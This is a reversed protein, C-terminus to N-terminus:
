AAEFWEDIRIKKLRETEKSAIKFPEKSGALAAQLTFMANMAYDSDIGHSSIVKEAQKKYYEILDINNM